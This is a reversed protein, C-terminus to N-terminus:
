WLLMLCILEQSKMLAAKKLRPCEQCGPLYRRSPLIYTMLLQNRMTVLLMKQLHTIALPVALAIRLVLLSRESRGLLNVRDIVESTM